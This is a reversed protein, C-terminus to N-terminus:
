SRWKPLSLTSRHIYTHNCFAVDLGSDARDASLWRQELIGRVRTSMPFFRGAAQTKGHTVLFTGNTGNGWDVFYWRLRYCEEPRLGTDILVSGIQQLLSPANALYVIRARVSIVRERNACKRSAM